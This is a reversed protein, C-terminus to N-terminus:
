LNMKPRANPTHQVGHQSCRARGTIYMDTNMGPPNATHGTCPMVLLSEQIPHTPPFIAVQYKLAPYHFHTNKIHSAQFALCPAGHHLSSCLLHSPCISTDSCLGGQIDMSHQQTKYRNAPPVMIDNDCIPMGVRRLRSCGQIGFVARQSSLEDCQGRCANEM